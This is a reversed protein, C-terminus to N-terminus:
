SQRVVAIRDFTAEDLGWRCGNALSEIGSDLRGCTPASAALMRLRM